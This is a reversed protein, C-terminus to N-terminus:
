EIFGEFEARRPRAGEVVVHQAIWDPDLGVTPLESM